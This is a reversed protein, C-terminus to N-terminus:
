PAAPAVGSQALKAAVVIREPEPLSAIMTTIV